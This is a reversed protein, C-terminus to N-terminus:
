RRWVPTAAVRALRWGDGTRRAELAYREGLLETGEARAFAVLLNADITARDGDLAVLPNAILHQTPVRHNRAAQAVVADLGEARGGATRVVVDPTFLSRAAAAPAGDDLWRGLRGVLAELARRDAESGAAPAAGAAGCATTATTTTM